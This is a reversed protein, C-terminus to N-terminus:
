GDELLELALPLVFLFPSTTLNARTFPFYVQHRWLPNQRYELNRSTSGHLLSGQTNPKNSRETRAGGQRQKGWVSQKKSIENIGDTKSGKRLFKILLIIRPIMM